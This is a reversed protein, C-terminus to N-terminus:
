SKLPIYRWQLLSDELHYSILTKPDDGESFYRSVPGFVHKLEESNCTPLYVRLVRPDYYRFYMNKGREDTVKLFRRFHRRLVNINTNARLFIGWSDGWCHELLWHTFPHKPKLQVLYPAAAAMEPALIGAFLCRYDMKSRLLSPYIDEDRAGDLLAFADDKPHEWINSTITELDPM